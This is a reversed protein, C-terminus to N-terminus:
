CHRVSVNVVDNDQEKLVKEELLSEVESTRELLKGELM